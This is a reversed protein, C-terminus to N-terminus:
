SSRRICIGYPRIAGESPQVWYEGVGSDIVKLDVASVRNQFVLQYDHGHHSFCHAYKAAVDVSPTSYIGKGYKFRKGKSLNYGEQAISGSVNVGTGHYSVPWEGECSGTRHGPRGLWDNDGYRDLVKLACRKWGYPRFYRKGGRYFVTGDDVKRTFDYDFSPDLLSDDIYYKPPCGGGRLRLVMHVTCHEQIGYESLEKVDEMQIGGYVLRQQDVPTGEVETVAEKLDSVYAHEPVKVSTTRGALTKVCVEITAGSARQGNRKDGIKGTIHSLSFLRDMGLAQWNTYSKTDDQKAKDAEYQDYTLIPTSLTSSFAAALLDSVGSGAMKSYNNNPMRVPVHHM